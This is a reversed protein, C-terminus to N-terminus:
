VLWNALLMHIVLAVYNSCNQLNGKICDVNQKLGRRSRECNILTSLTHLLHHLVEPFDSAKHKNREVKISKIKLLDLHRYTSIPMLNQGSESICNKISVPQFNWSLKKTAIWKVTTREPSIQKQILLWNSNCKFTKM